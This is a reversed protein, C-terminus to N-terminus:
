RALLAASDLRRTPIAYGRGRVAEIRGESTSVFLWGGERSWTIAPRASAVPGVAFPTLAGTM